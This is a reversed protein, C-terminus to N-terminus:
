ALYPKTLWGVPAAKQARARTSPDSHATAFISPVSFRSLLEVAVDIGDRPGVLRIDMVALTPEKEQALQIAEEASVAIGVVEYGAERITHELDTAVFYDDEVILIRAPTVSSCPIGNAAPSHVTSSRVRPTEAPVVLKVMQFGM